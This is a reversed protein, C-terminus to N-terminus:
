KKKWSQVQEKKQFNSVNTLKRKMRDLILVDSLGNKQRKKMKQYSITDLIYSLEYNYNIQFNSLCLFFFLQRFYSVLPIEKKSVYINKEEQGNLNRSFTEILKKQCKNCLNLLSNYMATCIATKINRNYLFLQFSKKTANQKKLFAAM